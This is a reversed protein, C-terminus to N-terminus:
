NELKNKHHLAAKFSSSFSNFQDKPLDEQFPLKKSAAAEEERSEERREELRMKDFPDMQINRNIDQIFEKSNECKLPLYERNSTVQPPLDFLLV